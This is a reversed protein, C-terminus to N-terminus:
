RPVAIYRMPKTVVATMFVRQGTLLNLEGLFGPGGQRIIERGSADDIRAEGELIAIFPYTQDGVAFLVDGPVATREEGHEAVLELQGPSLVRSTTSAM